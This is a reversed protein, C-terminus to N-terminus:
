VVRCKCLFGFDRWIDDDLRFLGEGYCEVFIGVLRLVYMWCQVGDNVM